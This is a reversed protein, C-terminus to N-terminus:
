TPCCGVVTEGPIPYYQFPFTTGGPIPELNGDSLVASVGCATSYGQPCALGPSYFGLGSFPEPPGTTLYKTNPPWCTIEDTIQSDTSCGDQGLYYKSGFVVPVQTYWCNEPLTWTTTLPGLNDNRTSPTPQSTQQARVGLMYTSTGDKLTEYGGVPGSFTTSATVYVDSYVTSVPIHTM